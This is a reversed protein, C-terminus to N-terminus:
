KDEKNQNSWMFELLDSVSIKTVETYGGYEGYRYNVEFHQEDYRIYGRVDDIRLTETYWGNSHILYAKILDEM